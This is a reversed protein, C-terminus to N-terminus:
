IAEAEVHFAFCSANVKPIASVLTTFISSLSAALLSYALNVAVPISPLLAACNFDSKLKLLDSTPNPSTSFVAKVM